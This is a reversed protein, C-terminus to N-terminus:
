YMQDKGEKIAYYAVTCIVWPKKYNLYEMICLFNRGQQFLCCLLSKKRVSRRCSPFLMASTARNNFDTHHCPHEKQSTINGHRLSPPQLCLSCCQTSNVTDKHSSSRSEQYKGLDTGKDPICQKSTISEASMRVELRCGVELFAQNGSPEKRPKV